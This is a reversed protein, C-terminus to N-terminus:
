SPTKFLPVQPTLATMSDIMREQCNEDDLCGSNWNEFFNYLGAGYTFINTSNIVRVAWTRACNFEECDSYTPDNYAELPTYPSLANPNGQYYATEHQIAGMFVNNANSIQYDYFVNHEVSTGWLWVPGDRSELLFGRCISPSLILL